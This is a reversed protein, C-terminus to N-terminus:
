GAYVRAKYGDSYIRVKNKPDLPYMKDLEDSTPDYFICPIGLELCMTEFHGGSNAGNSTMESSDRVLIVVKKRLEPALQLLFYTLRDATGSKAFSEKFVFLCMEDEALSALDQPTREPSFVYSSIKDQIQAVVGNVVGVGRGDYLIDKGEPFGEFSRSITANTALPREQVVWLKNFGRQEVRERNRTTVAEIQVSSGVESELFIATKALAIPASGERFKRIDPVVHYFDRYASHHAYPPVQRLVAIKEKDVVAQGIKAHQLEGYSDFMDETLRLDDARISILNANGALQSDITYNAEVENPHTQLLVGMREDQPQIGLQELYTIAEISSTSEYVKSLAAYFDLPSFGPMLRVSEYVGAGMSAEGDEGLVASSRVMVGGSISSLSQAKNFLEWIDAGTIERKLWNEYLDVSVVEFKPIEIGGVVNSADLERIAPQIAALNAAKAGFEERFITM